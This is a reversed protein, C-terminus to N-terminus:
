SQHWHQPQSPCLSWLHVETLLVTNVTEESISLAQVVSLKAAQRRYHFGVGM